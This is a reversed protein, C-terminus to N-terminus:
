YGKSPSIILDNVQIIGTSIVEAVLGGCDQFVEDFKEKLHALKSPRKCPDCYKVGRFRASGITFERGILWMLDIGLTVINRRSDAFDFNTGAFFRGNILTVQHKGMASKNYSGEAAWYRDGELGRGVEALVKEKSQMPEGAVPSIYIALVKGNSM